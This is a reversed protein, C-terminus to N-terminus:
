FNAFDNDVNSPCSASHLFSKRKYLLFSGRLKHQNWSCCKTRNEVIAVLKLVV